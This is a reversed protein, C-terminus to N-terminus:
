RQTAPNQADRGMLYLIAYFLIIGYFDGLQTKFLQWPKAHTYSGNGDVLDKNM